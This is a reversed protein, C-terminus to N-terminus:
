QRTLTAPFPLYARPSSWQGVLTNGRVSGNFTTFELPIDPGSASIAFTSGGLTGTLALPVTRFSEARQYTYVGTGLISVGSATLNFVVQATDRGTPLLLPGAWSGDINAQAETGGGGCAAAVLALAIIFRHRRM